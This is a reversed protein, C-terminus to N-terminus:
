ATMFLFDMANLLAALMLFQLLQIPIYKANTDLFRKDSM